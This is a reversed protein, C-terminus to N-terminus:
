WDQFFTEPMGVFSNVADSYSQASGRFVCYSTTGTGFVRQPYRWDRASQRTEDQPHKFHECFTLFPKQILYAQLDDFCAWLTPMIAQPYHFPRFMKIPIFFPFFGRGPCSVIKRTCCIQMKRRSSSPEVSFGQVLFFLSIGKGGRRWLGTSCFPDEFGGLQNEQKERWIREWYCESVTEFVATPNLM